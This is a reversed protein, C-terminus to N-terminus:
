SSLVRAFRAGLCPDRDDPLLISDVDVRGDSHCHADVMRDGDRSAPLRSWTAGQDFHRDELFKIFRSGLIYLNLDQGLLNHKQAHKAFDDERTNRNPADVTGEIGMWAAPIETSLIPTDKKVSWNGLNFMRGLRILGEKGQLERPYYLALPKVRKGEVTPMPKKVEKETADLDPVSIELGIKKGYVEYFTRNFRTLVEPSYQYRRYESLYPAILEEATQIAPERQLSPTEEQTATVENYVALTGVLSELIRKDPGDPTMDLIGKIAREAQQAHEPTM